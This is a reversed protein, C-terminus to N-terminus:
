AAAGGLSAVALLSSGAPPSVADFVAQEVTSLALLPANIVGPPVRPVYASAGKEGNRRAPHLLARVFLSRRM